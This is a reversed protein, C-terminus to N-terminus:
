PEEYNNIANVTISILDVLVDFTNKDVYMNDGHVLYNRFKRMEQLKKFLSDDIIGINRLYYINKNLIPRDIGGKRDDVFSNLKKEFSNYKALFETFYNQEKNKNSSTNSYSNGKIAKENALKIRNPNTAKYTFLISCGISAISFFLSGNLLLRLLKQLPSDITLKSYDGVIINGVCLLLAIGTLLGSFWLIHSYTTKLEKVIDTLTDDNEADKTLKGELFTYSAIILGFLTASVQALTSSFYLTQNENLLPVLGLASLVILVIILIVAIIIHSSKKNM